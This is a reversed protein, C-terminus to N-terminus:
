ENLWDRPNYLVKTIEKEFDYIPERCYEWRAILPMSMLISEIRASPKKLGFRTGRDYVLNFEVYRGRRIEQWEKEAETYQQFAHRRVLPVYCEAFKSAANKVFKLIKEKNKENM